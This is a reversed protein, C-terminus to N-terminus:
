RSSASGPVARVVRSFVKSLRLGESRALRWRGGFGSGSAATKNSEAESEDSEADDVELPLGRRLTLNASM